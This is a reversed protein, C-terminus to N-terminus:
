RTTPTNRRRRATSSSPRKDLTPEVVEEKGDRRLRIKLKDGPSKAVVRASLDQYSRVPKDDVAVIVDGETIGVLEAPSGSSVSTIQAGASGDDPPGSSVGLWGHDLPEGRVIKDAVTKATQIPIAFGIGSNEGSQSFISTNIGIVEGARNALAGGSNGPNIPADTQIMNIAINNNGPVPRDVASVIGLTVSQDLGFPSGIAIATQGVTVQDGGLRAAVPNAGDVKVVAVDAEDDAGLVSGHAVKGDYFHVDVDRSTGVVHANTLILGSPDFMVGSGLGDDTDIQVVAPSLVKAVAAAPDEPLSGPVVSATILGPRTQNRDILLGLSLGGLLLCLGVLVALAVRGSSRRPRPAPPAGAPGGPGSLPPSVPFGPGSPSGWPRSWAGTDGPAPPPGAGPWGAGTPNSPPAAPAYPPGGPPRESWPDSVATDEVADTTM